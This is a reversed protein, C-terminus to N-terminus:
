KDKYRGINRSCFTDLLGDCNRCIIRLNDKSNNKKNGDIHDIILPVKVMENTYPNKWEEVDCLTCKHGNIEILYKKYTGIWIKEGRNIREELRVKHIEKIKDIKSESQNIKGWDVSRLTGDDKWQNITAIRKKNKSEESFTRSSRCSWGCYEKFGKKPIFENGCRKCEAM